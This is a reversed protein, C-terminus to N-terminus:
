GPRPLAFYVSDAWQDGLQLTKEARGTEVFGARQLMHISAANRPDVDATIQQLKLTDFGFRILAQLLETGLGQGWVDRHLVYGVEDGQWFGATGIAEGEHEVVFYTIPPDAKILGWLFDATQEVETFPLWSWYAMAAPDSFVAHLGGLDKIKGQRM